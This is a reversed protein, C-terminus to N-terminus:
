ITVDSLWPHNKIESLTPRRQPNNQLIRNVLNKAEDSIRSRRSDTENQSDPFTFDARIIKSFFQRRSQGPELNFPLYGVLLAYLIIGLSWIDTKRGDYPNGSILEPAAYEESGCRTTLIPSSKNIFKALGFDTLKIIIPEDPSSSDILINELKLDRHVINNEHLYEIINVLQLFIHKSEEETSNEYNENVYDFLEGGPVYELVLCLHTPTDITDLLGVINPHNIYKLLEVERSVSAKLRESDQIGKIEIMKIAVKKCTNLDIALKVTSFSGKGIKKLIVYHSILEAGKSLGLKSLRQQLTHHGFIPGTDDSTQNFEEVVSNGNQLYSESSSRQHPYNQNDANLSSSSIKRIPPKHKLYHAAPFDCVSTAPSPLTALADDDSAIRQHQPRKPPVYFSSIKLNNNKPDQVFNTAIKPLDSPLLKRESPVATTTSEDDRTEEKIINANNKQQDNSDSGHSSPTSSTTLINISPSLPISSPSTPSTTPSSITNYMPLSGGQTSSCTHRKRNEMAPSSNFMKDYPLRTGNDTVISRSSDSLIPM